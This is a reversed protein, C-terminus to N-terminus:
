NKARNTSSKRKMLNGTLVLRSSRGTLLLAPPRLCPIETLGPPRLCSPSHLGQKTLRPLLPGSAGPGGTRSVGMTSIHDLCKHFTHRGTRDPRSFLCVNRPCKKPKYEHDQTWFHDLIPLIFTKSIQTKGDPGSRSMELFVKTAYM